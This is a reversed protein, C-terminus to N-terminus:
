ISSNLTLMEMIRRYVIRNAKCSIRLKNAGHGSPKVATKDHIAIVVTSTAIEGIVEGMYERGVGFILRGKLDFYVLNNITLMLIASDNLINDVMADDRYGAQAMLQWARSDEVSYPRIVRDVGYMVRPQRMPPRTQHIGTENRIGEATHKVGDALGALPKVVLGSLGKALGKAFGEPTGSKSGDVPSKVIGTVGDFVGQGVANAGKLLGELVTKPRDRASRSRQRTQYEEDMTLVNLNSSVNSAIKSVSNSFGGVTKRAFSAVGRAIGHVGQGPSMLFGQYPEYFLDFVGSSINQFLGVPNGFVELSLGLKGLEQFLAGTYHTKLNQEFVDRTAYMNTLILANFRLPSRDVAALNSFFRQFFGHQVSPRFYGPSFSFDIKLPHLIFEDFHVKVNDKMVNRTKWTKGAYPKEGDAINSTTRQKLFVARLQEVTENFHMVLRMDFRLDVSQILFAAYKFYRKGASDGPVIRRYACFNLMPSDARASQSRCLLVPFIQSAPNDLQMTQIKLDFKEHTAARECRFDLGGFYLFFLENRLTDMPAAVLSLALGALHVHLTVVPAEEAPWEWEGSNANSSSSATASSKWRDRAEQTRTAALVADHSKLIFIRAPGREHIMWHVMRGDPATFSGSFGPPSANSSSSKTPEDNIPHLNIKHPPGHQNGIGLRVEVFRPLSPEPWGYSITTAGRPNLQVWRHRPADVQRVFATAHSKNCMQYMPGLPGTTIRMPEDRFIIFLTPDDVFRIEVSINQLDGRDSSLGIVFESVQNIPIKGSWNWRAFRMTLYNASKWMPCRQGVRLEIPQAHEGGMFVQLPESGVELANVCVFRPVVHVVRVPVKPRMANEPSRISIGFEYRGERTKVMVQGTQGVPETQISEGASASGVHILLDDCHLADLPMITPEHGHDAPQPVFSANKFLTFGYSFRVPPASPGFCTNVIWCPTHILIHPPFHDNEQQYLLFINTYEDTSRNANSRPHPVKVSTRRDPPTRSYLSVPESWKTGWIKIRLVLRQSLQHSHLLAKENLSLRGEGAIESPTRVIQYAVPIPLSSELQLPPVIHLTVQRTDAMVEATPTIYCFFDPIDGVGQCRVLSNDSKAFLQALHVVYSWDYGEFEPRFAAQSRCDHVPFSVTAGPQVMFTQKTANETGCRVYMAVACHNKILTSSQVVLIKRTGVAQVLYFLFLRTEMTTWREGSATLSSTSSASRSVGSRQASRSGREVEPVLERVYVGTRALPVRQAKFGKLGIRAYPGVATLEGCYDAHKMALQVEVLRRDEFPAVIAHQEPTNDDQITVDLDCGMTNLVSYPAFVSTATSAAPVHDWEELWERYNTRWLVKIFTESINIYLPQPSTVVITTRSPLGTRPVNCSRVINLKYPEGTSELLPEFAVAVPNFFWALFEIGCDDKRDEVNKRRGRYSTIRGSTFRLDLFPTALDKGEDNVLLLKISRALVECTFDEDGNVSNAEVSKAAKVLQPEGSGAPAPETTPASPGSSNATQWRLCAQILRMDRYSMPGVVVPELSTKYTVKREFTNAATRVEETTGSFYFDLEEVLERIDKHVETTGGTKQEAKTMGHLDDCRFVTCKDLLLKHAQTPGSTEQMYSTSGRILVAQPNPIWKEPFVLSADSLKLNIVSNHRPHEAEEKGKVASSESSPKEPFFFRLIQTMLGVHVCVRAGNINILLTQEVDRRFAYDISLEYGKDLVHGQRSLLAGDFPGVQRGHPDACIEKVSAMKLQLGVTLVSTTMKVIDCLITDVIVDVHGDAIADTLRVTVSELNFSLRLWEEEVMDNVSPEPNIQPVDDDAAAINELFVNTLFLFQASTFKLPIESVKVTVVLPAVVPRIEGMQRYFDISINVNGILPSMDPHLARMNTAMITIKDMTGWSHELEWYAATNIANTIKISDCTLCVARERSPEVLFTDIPVIIEPTGIVLRFQYKRIIEIVPETSKDLELTGLDVGSIGSAQSETSRAKGGQSVGRERSDESVANTFRSPPSFSFREKNLACQSSVGDDPADSVIRPASSMEMFEDCEEDEDEPACIPDFFEIQEEAPLERPEPGATIGPIFGNFIWKWLRMVKQNLLLFEISAFSLDVSMSDESTIPFTHLHVSLIYDAGKRVSLINPRFQSSLDQITFNGLMADFTLIEEYLDLKFTTHTMTSKGFVLGTEEELWMLVVSACHFNIKYKLIGSESLSQHDGNPLLPSLPLPQPSVIPAPFPSPPTDKLFINLSTISQPSFTLNITTLRLDVKWQAGEGPGDPKGDSLVIGVKLFIDEAGEDSLGTRLLTHEAEPGCPRLLSVDAVNFEMMSFDEMQSFGFHTKKTVLDISDTLDGFCYMRLTFVPLSVNIRWRDAQDDDSPQFDEKKDGVVLEENASSPDGSLLLRIANILSDYAKPHLSLLLEPLAGDIRRFEEKRYSVHIDFNDVVTFSAGNPELHTLHMGTLHIDYAQECNDLSSVALHGLHAALKPDYDHISPLIITPADLNVDLSIVPAGEMAERIRQTAILVLGEADRGTQYNPPRARFFDAIETIYQYDFTWSSGVISCSPTITQAHAGPVDTIGSSTERPLSLKIQLLVSTTSIGSGRQIISIPLEMNARHTELLVDGMEFLVNMNEEVRTEIHVETISCTTRVGVDMYLTLGLHQFRVDVIYTDIDVHDSEKFEDEEEDEDALGQPEENNSSWRKRIWGTWGGGQTTTKEDILEEMISRRWRVIEHTLAITEIEDMEMQEHPLIKGEKQLKRVLLTYRTQLRLRHVHWKLWWRMNQRTDRYQTIERILCGTCYQWWKRANGSIPVDPRFPQHRQFMAITAEQYLSYTAFDSKISMIDQYQQHTLNVQIQNMQGSLALRPTTFDTPSLNQSFKLLANLPLLIERPQSPLGGYSTLNEIELRKFLRDVKTQQRDVFVVNGCADTSSVSLSDLRVGFCMAEKPSDYRIQLTKISIRVNDKMRGFMRAFRGANNSADAGHLIQTQLDCNDLLNRRRNFVKAREEEESWLSADKPTFNLFLNDLELEVPQSGLRNWPVRCKFKGVRGQVKIPLNLIQDIKEHRLGVDELDLVGEWLKLSVDPLDLYERLYDTIYGEIWRVAQGFVGM